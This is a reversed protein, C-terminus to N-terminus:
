QRKYLVFSYKKLLVRSISCHIKKRPDCFATRLIKKNVGVISCLFSYFGKLTEIRKLGRIKSLCYGGIIRSFVSILQDEFGYIRGKKNTLIFDKQLTSFLNTLFESFLKHSFHDMLDILLICPSKQLPYATIFLKKM